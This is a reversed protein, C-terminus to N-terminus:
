FKEVILKKIMDQINPYILKYLKKKQKPIDSEEIGYLYLITEPVELVKCIKKLNTPNPKKIGNEIQSISTQSIGCQEAFDGQSYGKDTRAKKIASGINM